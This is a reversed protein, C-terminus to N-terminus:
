ESKIFYERPDLHFGNKQIAFYLNQKGEIDLIGLSQGKAVKDGVQFQIKELGGYAIKLGYAQAHLIIINGHAPTNTKVQIVTGDAVSLVNQQLTSFIRVGIIKGEKNLVPQVKGQIPVQFKNQWKAELMESNQSQKVSEALQSNADKKENEKPSTNEQKKTVNLHLYQKVQGPEPIKEYTKDSLITKEQIMVCGHFASAMCILLFSNFIKKLNMLNM